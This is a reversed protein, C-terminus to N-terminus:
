TGRPLGIGPLIDTTIRSRDFRTTTSITIPNSTAAQEDPESEPDAVVVLADEVLLESNTVVVEAGVVVV